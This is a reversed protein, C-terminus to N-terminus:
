LKDRIDFTGGSKRRDPVFLTLLKYLNGIISVTRSTPLKLALFEYVILVIGSVATWLNDDIWKKQGVDADTQITAEDAVTMVAETGGGADALQYVQQEAEAQKAPPSSCAMLLMGILFIFIWKKM